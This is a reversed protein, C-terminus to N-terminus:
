VHMNFSEGATLMCNVTPTCYKIIIESENKYARSCSVCAEGKRDRNSINDKFYM